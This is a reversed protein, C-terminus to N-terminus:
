RLLLYQVQKGAVMVNHVALNVAAETLHPNGSYLAANSEIAAKGTLGSFTDGRPTLETVSPAM